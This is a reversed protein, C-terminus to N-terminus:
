TVNSRGLIGAPPTALEHFELKRKKQMNKPILRKQIDKLKKPYRRRGVRPAMDM